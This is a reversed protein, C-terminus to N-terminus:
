VQTTQRTSGAPYARVIEWLEGQPAIALIPRRSALYEFVKAPVVREAGEVGSLLVCLGQASRLLRLAEVHDLYPYEVVRCPMAKLADLRRQQEAIRRGASIQLSLESFLHQPGHSKAVGSLTVLSM